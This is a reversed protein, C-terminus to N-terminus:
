TKFTLISFFVLLAILGFLMSVWNIPKRTEPYQWMTWCGVAIAIPVIAAAGFFSVILSYQIIHGALETGHSAMVVGARGAEIMVCVAIYPIVPPIVIWLTPFERPM